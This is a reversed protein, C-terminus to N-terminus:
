LAIRAIATLTHLFGRFTEPHVTEQGLNSGFVKGIRLLFKNM